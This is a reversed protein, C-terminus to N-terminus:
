FARPRGKMPRIGGVTEFNLVWLELEVEACRLGRFDSELDQFHISYCGSYVGGQCASELMLFVQMNGKPGGDCNGTAM